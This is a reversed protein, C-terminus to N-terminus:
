TSYCGLELIKKELILSKFDIKQTKIKQYLTVKSRDLQYSVIIGCKKYQDIDNIDLCQLLAM